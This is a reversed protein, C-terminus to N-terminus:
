IFLSLSMSSMIRMMFMSLARTSPLMLNCVMMICLRSVDSVIKYCALRLPRNAILDCRLLDSLLSQSCLVSDARQSESDGQM